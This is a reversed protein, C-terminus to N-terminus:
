ARPLRNSGLRLVLRMRELLRRIGLSIGVARQALVAPRAAAALYIALPEHARWDSRRSAGSWFVFAFCCWGAACPPRDLRASRREPLCFEDAPTRRVSGSDEIDMERLMSWCPQDEVQIKVPLPSPVLPTGKSCNLGRCPAPLRPAERPPPSTSRESLHESMPSGVTQLHDGCTALASDTWALSVVFFLAIGTLSRAFLILRGLGM